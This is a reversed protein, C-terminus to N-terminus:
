PRVGCVLITRNIGDAEPAPPRVRRDADRGHTVYAIVGLINGFARVLM